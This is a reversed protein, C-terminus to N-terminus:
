RRPPSPEAQAERVKQQCHELDKRSQEESFGLLRQRVEIPM